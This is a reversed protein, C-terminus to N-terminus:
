SLWDMRKGGCCESSLRAPNGSGRTTSAHQCDFGSQERVPPCRSILALRCRLCLCSSLASQACLHPRPGSVSIRIQCPFPYARWANLVCGAMLVPKVHPPLRVAGPPHWARKLAPEGAYSAPVSRCGGWCSRYPGVCAIGLRPRRISHSERRFQPFGQANQQPQVCLLVGARGSRFASLPSLHAPRPRWVTRASSAPQLPILLGLFVSDSLLPPTM